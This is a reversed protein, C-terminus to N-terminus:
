KNRISINKRRFFIVDIENDSEKRKRESYHSMTINLGVEKLMHNHWKIFDSYKRLVKTPDFPEEKGIEQEHQRFDGAPKKNQSNDM